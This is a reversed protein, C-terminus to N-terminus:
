ATVTRDMRVAQLWSGRSVQTTEGAAVAQAWQLQVVGPVSGGVYRAILHHVRETTTVQITFAATMDTISTIAAADMAWHDGEIAGGAPVTFAFQLDPTASFGSLLLLTLMIQWNEDASVRFLFDDDNQLTASNTVAENAIKTLIFTTAAM